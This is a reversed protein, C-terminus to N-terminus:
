RQQAQATETGQNTMHKITTTVALVVVLCLVGAMGSLIYRPNM